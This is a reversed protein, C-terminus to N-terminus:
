YNLAKSLDSLSVPKGTKVDAHIKDLETNSPDNAIATSPFIDVISQDYIKTYHDLWEDAESYTDFSRIPIVGEPTIRAICYSM